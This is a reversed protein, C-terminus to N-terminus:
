PEIKEPTDSQPSPAPKSGESSHIDRVREIFRELTQSPEGAL